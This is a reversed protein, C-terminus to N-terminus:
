EPPHGAPYTRALEEATPEHPQRAEAPLLEVIAAMIRETATALWADSPPGAAQKKLSRKPLTFPAGARVLVTPPNGVNWLEPIRSSRPWVRETGWLAMPIIPAGTMAALRAAGWRGKLEPEFFEPGRPITGQPLVAVIEGAALAGAAARLPEDSGSGRDVPIGGLARAIPGVVPADFLERKALFRVSRGHRALAMALAVPDFYSRHNAVLIGPGASPLPDPADIDFRVGPFMEPFLSTLVLQQAELGVLKPVGPPVDFHVIPWRKVLGYALMRPDPNVVHPHGVASLLPVDYYSDSYAHSESLDVDSEVAWAAVARNKGRGWVFEGDIGGTYVDDVAQYRTAIVADFGLLAALPEILDHPTTTAMVLLRGEGRHREIEALAFPPVRDFLVGAAAEGASRVAERSWGATARAARRTLEMTPRNEGVLDFIRYLAGEGPISRGALLGGARLHEGIVPGSAGTLLTRDLDFIAASRGM